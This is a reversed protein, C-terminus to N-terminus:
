EDLMLDATRESGHITTRILRASSASESSLFAFGAAHGPMPLGALLGLTSRSM